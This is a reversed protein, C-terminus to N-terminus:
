NFWIQQWNNTHM